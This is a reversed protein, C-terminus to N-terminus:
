QYRGRKASNKAFQKQSIQGVELKRRRLELIIMQTVQEKEALTVVAAEHARHLLYPYTNDGLIQCQKVLMAHLNDLMAPNENVWAPIEVRALWPQNIRGVNLYFFHLALHGIYANASSSQLAFVASREGPALRQKFLELDSVRVLPRQKNLAPLDTIPTMAIELLRVVLSAVPKDVYGATTIGQDCLDTLQKLYQERSKTFSNDDSGPNKAGWLELPGDTLTIIPQPLSKALEAMVMRENLDRKLSLDDDSIMRGNAPSEEDGSFILTSETTITPPEPSGHRLAVAGINVLCYDVEIHRDPAIQSGDVALLSLQPPLPPLPYSANLPESVPLASRLYPEYQRQYQQVKQRLAEVKGANEDLLLHAQERQERIKPAQKTAIDGLRKVQQQVEKFDLAMIVEYASRRNSTNYLRALAQALSFRNFFNWVLNTKNFEVYFV